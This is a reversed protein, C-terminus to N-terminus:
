HDTSDTEQPSSSGSPSPSPPRASSTSESPTRTSDTGDGAERRTPSPAPTPSAAPYGDGPESGISDGPEGGVPSDERSPPGSPGGGNDGTGDGSGPETPSTSTQDDRATTPLVGAPPHHPTRDSGSDGGIHLGTTDNVVRSVVRQAPGPLVDSAAAVGTLTVTCAAAVGVLAARRARRHRRADLSEVGRPTGLYADLEASPTPVPGTGLARLEGLLRGLAPTGPGAEALLEEILPEPTQGGGDRQMDDMEDWYDGFGTM